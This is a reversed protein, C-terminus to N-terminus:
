IVRGCKATVTHNCPYPIDTNGFVVTEVSNDKIIKVPRGKGCGVKVPALPAFFVADPTYRNMDGLRFNM